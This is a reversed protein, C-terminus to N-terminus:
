VGCMGECEEGWLDIQSSATLDVQDLPIRDRHLYPVGSLATKAYAVQLQTEFRVADRFEEKSLARWEVDSHFGCFTCSSKPPKPYGRSNMWDLCHGRTMGADLLPYVNEIYAVNSAKARHAEDTSIGILMRVKKAAGMNERVFKRIPDIKFNRTCTRPSMGSKPGAWYMPVPIKVYRKGEQSEKVETAARRLNGATVKAVPFPLVSQLWRLWAYVAQPESQTDAFVAFDPMPKVEGCAAMLALTSSQVGAGLSLVHIM